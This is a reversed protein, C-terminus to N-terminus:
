SSSRKKKKKKKKPGSPPDLEALFPSPEKPDSLIACCRRSRTLAVHLIRREEELDRSLRHPLLERTVGYVLVGEWELGKARHISSLRVGTEQSPQSLREQLWDEFDCPPGAHTRASQELSILDDRHSAAAKGPGSSQDLQDLAKLFDTRQRLAQFFQPLGLALQGGLMQLDILFDELQEAVWPDQLLALRQLQESNRCCAAKELVERRLKRSPRRLADALDHNKWAQPSLCLRLYALASRVGTRQLISSDVAKSHPIGQQQLALQLPLLLSNVRALVAMEDWDLEEKWQRLQFLALSSWHSAEGMLLEPQAPHAQPHPQIEKKIRLRNRELLHSAAQVVGVPCRYNTQLQYAQAMPFYCSFNVLFAPSAGAYGYIVQDDDGVGFVQYGPSALLRVMLLFAPTLDQFEDVLLHSCRLRAQRRAEPNQLLLEIAGYIQEDHDVRGLRALAQRFKPFAEALGELEPNQSEVEQPDLLGLRISQLGDLYPQLPDQNLRAPPAVLPRLLNRVERESLLEVGRYERLLWYGLAHLTRISSGAQPLRQRMELAAKRNYALATIRAPEIGSQLLYALRQTLVRTKGSGAPALVRAALGTHLVPQLQDPALSFEPTPPRRTVALQGLEVSERHVVPFPVSGRPGGDVWALGQWDIDAEPNAAAGLRQALRGHWWIPQGRTGDYNNAWVLWHLRERAFEFGPELQYVPGSYSEPQRLEEPSTALEVVSAQRLAWAAHLQELIGPSPRAGVRIRPCDQWLAPVPQGRLLVIGRGLEPPPPPHAM